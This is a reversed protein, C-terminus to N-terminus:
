VVECCINLIQGVHSIWQLCLGKPIVELTTHVIKEVSSFYAEWLFQTQQQFALIKDSHLCRVTSPIQFFAPSVPVHLCLFCPSQHGFACALCDARFYPGSARGLSPCLNQLVCLQGVSHSATCTPCRFTRCYPHSSASLVM